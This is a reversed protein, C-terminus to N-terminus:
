PPLAPRAAAIRRSFRLLFGPLRVLAHVKKRGYILFAAAGAAGCGELPHVIV